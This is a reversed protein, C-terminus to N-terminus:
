ELEMHAFRPTTQVAGRPMHEVGGAGGEGWSTKPRGVRRWVVFGVVAVAVLLVPVLVGAVVVGANGGGGGGGGGEDDPGVPGERPLWTYSVSFWTDSFAYSNASRAEMWSVQHVAGEQLELDGPDVFPLECMVRETTDNFAAPCPWASYDDVDWFQMRAQGKKLNIGQLTLVDGSRCRLATLPGASVECGTVSTISPSDPYAVLYANTSRIGPTSSFALRVGTQTGWFVRAQADTMSPIVATITNKDVVAPSQLTINIPQVLSPNYILQANVQQGVPFGVGQMTLTSTPVCAVVQSSDAYSPAVYSSCRVFATVAPTVAFSVVSPYTVSGGPTTLVVDWAVGAEDETILPLYGHVTQSGDGWLNTCPYVGRGPATLSLNASWIYAGWVVVYGLQPLCNTWPASANGPQLCYAGAANVSTILPPPITTFSVNVNGGVIVDVYQQTAFSFYRLNFSVPMSVGTYHIPQTIFPWSTNLPLAMRTGDSSPQLGYTYVTTSNGFTILANYLMPFLGFGTGTFVLTDRDPTCLLTSAGGGQCGSISTFTPLPVPTLSIGPTPNSTNGTTRDLISLTLPPPSFLSPNYGDLLLTLSYTTPNIATATVDTRLDPSSLRITLTAPLSTNPSPLNSITLWLTAPLTCSTLTTPPTNTCASHLSTLSSITLQTYDLRQSTTPLPLLSLLPLLLFPLLLVRMM